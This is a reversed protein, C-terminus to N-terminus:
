AIEVFEVTLSQLLAERKDRRLFLSFPTDKHPVGKEFIKLSIQVILKGTFVM